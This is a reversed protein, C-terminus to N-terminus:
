FPIEHADEVVEREPETRAMAEDLLLDEYTAWVAETLAGCFDFLATAQARNLPPWAVGFSAPDSPM